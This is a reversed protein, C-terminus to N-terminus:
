KAVKVPEVTIQLLGARGACTSRGKRRLSPSRGGQGCFPALPLAVNGAASCCVHLRRLVLGQILGLCVCLSLTGHLTQGSLARSLLQGLRHTDWAPSLCRVVCLVCRMFNTLREADARGRNRKM